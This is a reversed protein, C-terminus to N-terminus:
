FNTVRCKPAAPTHFPSFIATVCGVFGDENENIIPVSMGFIDSEVFQSIKQKVKLAQLTLSGEKLSYGPKFKLDIIRSSQYYIYKSGDAM